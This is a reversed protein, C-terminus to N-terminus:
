APKTQHLCSTRTTNCLEWFNRHHFLWTEEKLYCYSVGFLSRTMIWKTRMRLLSSIPRAPALGGRASQNSRTYSCRVHKKKMTVNRCKVSVNCTADISPADRSALSRLVISLADHKQFQQVRNAHRWIYLMSSM